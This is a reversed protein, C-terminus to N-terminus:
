AARTACGRTDGPGSSSEQVCSEFARTHEGGDHAEGGHEGGTPAAATRAGAAVGDVAAPRGELVREVFGHDLRVDVRVRVHGDDVGRAARAGALARQLGLVDVEGPTVAQGLGALQARVLAALEEVERGHGGREGDRVVQ